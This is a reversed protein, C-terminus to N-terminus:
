PHPKSAIVWQYTVHGGHWTVIEDTLLTLGTDLLMRRNTAAGYSSSVMPAGLMDHIVDHDRHGLSALLHGGPRLWEAIRQLLDAHQTRPVHPISYFATVLDFSAPAFTVTSMSSKIFRAKPVNRRALELQAASIDVGVADGREALLATCPVGAGCGLDLAAPRTPFLTLVDNLYRLRPDDEVQNIWDLYRAAIEDYGAEVVEESNPGM